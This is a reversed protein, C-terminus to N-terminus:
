YFFDMVGGQHSRRKFRREPRRNTPRATAGATAGATSGGDRHGGTRGPARGGARGGTRRVASGVGPIGPTPVAIRPLPSEYSVPTGKYLGLVGLDGPEKSAQTM